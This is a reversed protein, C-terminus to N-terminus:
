SPAKHLDQLTERIVEDGEPSFGDLTLRVTGDKVLFLRPVQKVNYLSALRGSRDRVLAYSPSGAEEEKPVGNVYIGVFRIEQSGYDEALRQFYPESRESNLNLQSWFAIVYTGRESLVFTGDGRREASFTPAEDTPAPAPPPLTLNGTGTTPSGYLRYSVALAAVLVL